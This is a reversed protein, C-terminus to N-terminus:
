PKIFRSTWEDPSRPFPDDGFGDQQLRERIDPRSREEHLVVKRFERYEAAFDLLCTGTERVVRTTPSDLPDDIDFLVVSAIQRLTDFAKLWLLRLQERWPCEGTATEPDRSASILMSQTRRLSLAARM